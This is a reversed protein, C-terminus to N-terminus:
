KFAFKLSDVSVGNGIYSNQPLRTKEGVSVWSAILSVGNKCFRDSVFASTGSEVGVEAGDMIHSRSGVITKYVKTNNGIYVNPMIISDVVEAGEGIFVSDSLVSRDVKGLIVGSGSLISQNVDGSSHLYYSSFAAGSSTYVKRGEENIVFGPPSGLLDMNSEWLSDLTDVDRWYGDFRYAYMTESSSALISPFIDLGFCSASNKCVFDPTMYKKLTAWNMICAGISAFNSRGTASKEEFDLVLGTEDPYLLGCHYNSRSSIPAYAVTVDANKKKHYDLMVSYDMNYIRSGSLVCVYKPSFLEIFDINRYVADTVGK